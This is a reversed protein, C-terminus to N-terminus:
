NLIVLSQYLAVFSHHAMVHVEHLIPRRIHASIWRTPEDGGEEFEVGAIEELWGEVFVM